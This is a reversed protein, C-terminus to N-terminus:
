QPTVTFTPGTVTTTGVTVQVPGTVADSGVLANIQNPSQVTFASGPTGATEGGFLVQTTGQFGGGILKVQTGLPGSAPSLGVVQPIVTFFQTTTVNDQSDNLTLGGTTATSPLTFLIQTDNVLNWQLAAGEGVAVFSVNNFGTGSISVITGAVGTTPTFSNVVINPMGKKGGCGLLLAAALCPLVVWSLIAKCRGALATSFIEM